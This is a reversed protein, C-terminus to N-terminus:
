TKDYLFRKLGWLVYAISMVTATSTELIFFAGIVLNLGFLVTIWNINSKAIYFVSEYNIFLPAIYINFFFSCQHMIANIAALVLVFYFGFFAFLSGINDVTFSYFITGLVSTIFVVFSVFPIFIWSLIYLISTHVREKFKFWEPGKYVMQMVERYLIYSKAQTLAGWNKFQQFINEVVSGDLKKDYLSYPFGTLNEDYGLSKMIDGTVGDPNRPETTFKKNGGKQFKTKGGGNLSNPIYNNINTPFLTELSRFHVMFVYNSGILVAILFVIVSVLVFIGYEKWKSKKESTNNQSNEIASVSVDAM